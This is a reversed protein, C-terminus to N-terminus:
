SKGVAPRRAGSRMNPDLMFKRAFQQLGVPLEDFRHNDIAEAIYIRLADQAPEHNKYAMTEIYARPVTGLDGRRLNSLLNDRM